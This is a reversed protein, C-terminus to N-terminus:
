LDGGLPAYAEVAIDSFTAGRYVALAMDILPMVAVAGTGEGLAMGAALVPTLGLKEMLLAGAPERSIHSALMFGAAEPEMSLAALAAVSSIFGDVLVAAGQAAGGLFAGAMACIAFGGLKQLVEVPDSPDPANVAIARRIVDVKRALGADTLGAGRGTMRRVDEGTLVAAVASATTTNGIGM